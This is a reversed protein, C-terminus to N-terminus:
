KISITNLLIFFFTSFHLHFSFDIRNKQATHTHTHDHSTTYPSARGLMMIKADVILIFIYESLCHFMLKTYLMSNLLHLFSIAPTILLSFFNSHHILKPTRNRNM